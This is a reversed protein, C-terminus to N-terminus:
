IVKENFFTIWFHNLMKINKVHSKWAKNSTKRNQFAFLKCKFCIHKCCFSQLFRQKCGINRSRHTLNCLIVLNAKQLLCMSKPWQFFFLVGIYMYTNYYYSFVTCSMFIISVFEIFSVVNERWVSYRNIFCILTWLIHTCILYLKHFAEFLFM